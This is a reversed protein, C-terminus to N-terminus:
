LERYRSATCPPPATTRRSLREACPRQQACVIPTHTTRRLVPTGPRRGSPQTRPCRKGRVTLQRRQDLVGLLLAPEVEEEARGSTHVPGVGDEVGAAMMIRTCAVGAAGAGSVVIRCSPTSNLDAFRKFLASKGEMAPLAARPGVDSLGLVATGDSVVAVLRDAWTYRAALTSDSAIARSVDAVGLTYSVALDHADDLPVALGTVLKGGEHAAFVEGTGPVVPSTTM